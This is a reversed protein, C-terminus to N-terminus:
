MAPVHSTSSSAHWLIQKAAAIRADALLSRRVVHLHKGATTRDYMYM